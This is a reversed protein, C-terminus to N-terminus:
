KKRGVLEQVFLVLDARQLFFVGASFISATIVTSMLWHMGTWRLLLGVASASIFIGMSVAPVRWDRVYHYGMAQLKRALWANALALAFANALPFALAGFQSFGLIGLVVSSSLFLNSPIMLRYQEVTQTLVELIVRETEFILFVLLAFLLWVSEPGYKQASILLMAEKGGVLLLAMFGFIVMLNVHLARDCLQGAAEFSRNITFRAVVVPRILGILLQTPLYRKIYEYISLAFGFSAMLKDGFMAGGLLRNTNGGFPLTALHQLYASVAFRGVTGRQRPWWAEDDTSTSADAKDNALVKALGAMLIVCAAGDCLAELVIVDMLSVHGDRLLWVMGAFRGVSSVSFALQAYGQHLASELIQSLFHSTARLAVVVLFFNFAQQVTELNIWGALTSSLGYALLLAALLVATRIGFTIFVVTRLSSSRHTAYLEPVYRLVVHALGLSSVATFVEVLAVLVSYSAFEAISLGRVILIIAGLGAVATLVKGALFLVIGRKVRDQGFRASV